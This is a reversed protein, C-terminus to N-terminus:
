GNSLLKIMLERTLNQLQNSAKHKGEVGKTVISNTIADYDNIETNAIPVDLENFNESLRDKITKLLILALEDSLSLNLSFKLSNSTGIALM